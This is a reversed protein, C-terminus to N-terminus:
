NVKCGLVANTPSTLDYKMSGTVIIRDAAASAVILRAADQQTQVLYLNADNLIHRLFGGSEM